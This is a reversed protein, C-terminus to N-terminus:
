PGPQVGRGAMDTSPAKELVRAAEENVPASPRTWHVSIVASLRTSQLTARRGKLTVTCYDSAALCWKRFLTQQGPSLLDLSFTAVNGSSQTIRSAALLCDMHTGALRQCNVKGPGFTQLAPSAIAPWSLLALGALLIVALVAAAAPELGGTESSPVLAPDRAM